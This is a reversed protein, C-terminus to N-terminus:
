RRDAPRRDAVGFAPQLQALVETPPRTPRRLLRDTMEPYPLGTGFPDLFALLPQGEALAMVHDLHKSVDGHLTEYDRSSAERALVQCLNKFHQPAREVFVCHLTRRFAEVADATQMALLPSGEAGVSQGKDPEYRGPGSFGDLYVVRGRHRQQRDQGHVGAPVEAPDTSLCPRLRSRRSSSTTPPGCRRIIWDPSGRVRAM